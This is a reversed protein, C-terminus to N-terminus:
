QRMNPRAMQRPLPLDGASSALSSVDNPNRDLWGKINTLWTVLLGADYLQCLTHCLRWEPQGYSGTVQHIQASHLRVGSDLQQLTTYIQDGAVSYGNTMNRVFPSDHAGLHTVNDYTKSCLSAANNCYQTQAYVVNALLPVALLAHSLTAPIM